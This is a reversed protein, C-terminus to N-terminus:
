RRQEVGNERGYTLSSRSQRFRAFEREPGEQGPTDVQRLGLRHQTDNVRTAPPFQIDGEFLESPTQGAREAFEAHSQNM